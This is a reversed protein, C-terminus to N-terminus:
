AALAGVRQVAAVRTPRWGPRSLIPNAGFAIDCIRADLGPGLAPDGPATDQQVHGPRERFGAARQIGARACREGHCIQFESAAPGSDLVSGTVDDDDAGSEQLPVELLVEPYPVQSCRM